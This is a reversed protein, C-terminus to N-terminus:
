VASRVCTTPVQTPEPAPLHLFWKLFRCISQLNALDALDDARVTSYVKNQPGTSDSPIPFTDILFMNKYTCYLQIYQTHVLHRRARRRLSQEVVHSQQKYKSLIAHFMFQRISLGQLCPLLRLSQDSLRSSGRVKMLHDIDADSREKVSRPEGV